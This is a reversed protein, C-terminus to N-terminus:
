AGSAGPAPATGSYPLFPGRLGSCTESEPQHPPSDADATPSLEPRPRRSCCGPSWTWGPPPRATPRPSTSPGTGSDASPTPSTLRSRPWTPTGTVISGHAGSRRGTEQVRSAPQAPSPAASGVDSRGTAAVCRDEARQRWQGNRQILGRPWRPQQGPRPLNDPIRGTRGRHTVSSASQTVDHGGVLRRAPEREADPGAFISHTGTQRRVGPTRYPGLSASPRARPWAM